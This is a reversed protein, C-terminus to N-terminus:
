NYLFIFAVGAIVMEIILAIILKCVSFKAIYNEFRGTLTKMREDTREIDETIVDLQKNQEEIVHAANKALQTGKKVDLTIEELRNDQQELKKKEMAMLEETSKGQYEEKDNYDETIFNKFRYKDDGINVFSQEM